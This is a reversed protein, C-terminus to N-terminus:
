LQLEPLKFPYKRETKIHWRNLIKFKLTFAIIISLVAHKLVHTYPPTKNGFFIITNLITDEPINRRTARILVSTESSNQEEKM